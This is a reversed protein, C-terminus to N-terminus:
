IASHLFTRLQATALTQAADYQEFTGVARFGLREALRLSARNATQTIIVVPQDSLEVAACQLLTRAAEAAYGHGWTHPLFVYTLELENGGEQVHGPLEPSRQSLEMTGLMEDTETSAVVFCGAPALLSAAGVSEVMARVDRESRPGGLYRRVREDTQTDILGVADDDRAKRLRVRKGEIRTAVVTPADDM